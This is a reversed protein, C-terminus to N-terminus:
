RRRRKFLSKLLWIGFGIFLVIVVISKLSFSFSASGSTDKNVSTGQASLIVDPVHSPQKVQTKGWIKGAVDGATTIINNWVSTNSTPLKFGGPASPNPEGIAISNVADFISM